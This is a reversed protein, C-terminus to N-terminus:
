SELKVNSLYGIRITPCVSDLSWTTERIEQNGRPLNQCVILNLDSWKRGMKGIWWEAVLVRCDWTIFVNL